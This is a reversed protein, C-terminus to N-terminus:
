SSNIPTSCVSLACSITPLSYTSFVQDFLTRILISRWLTFEKYVRWSSCLIPWLKAIKGGEIWMPFWNYKLHGRAWSTFYIFYTVVKFFDRLLHQFLVSYLILGPLIAQYSTNQISHKSLTPDRQNCSYMSFVHNRSTALSIQWNGGCQEPEQNNVWM